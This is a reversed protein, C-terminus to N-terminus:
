LTRLIAKVDSAHAGLPALQQRAATTLGASLVVVKAQGRLEPAARLQQLLDVGSAGPLMLDTLVLQVPTAHLIQIAAAVSDCRGTSARM